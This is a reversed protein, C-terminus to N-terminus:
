EGRVGAYVAAMAAAAMVNEYNHTGLIQLEDMVSQERRRQKLFIQSGGSLNGTGTQQSSFIYLMQKSTKELNRFVEDEYNLVCYDDETQNKCYKEKCPYISGDYSPPESSGTHHEPNCKGEPPFPRHDGAPFQQDRCCNRFRRDDELSKSIHLELIEWLLYLNM